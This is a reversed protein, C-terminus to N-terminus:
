SNRDRYRLAFASYFICFLLPISDHSLRMYHMPTYKPPFLIQKSLHKTDENRHM